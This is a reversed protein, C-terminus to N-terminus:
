DLNHINLVQRHANLEKRLINTYQKLINNKQKKKRFINLLIGHLGNQMIKYIYDPPNKLKANAWQQKNLYGM